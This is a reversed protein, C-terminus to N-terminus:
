DNDDLLLQKISTLEEELDGLVDIFQSNNIDGDIAQSAM